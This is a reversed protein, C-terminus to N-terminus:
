LIKVPTMLRKYIDYNMKSHFVAKKGNIICPRFNTPMNNEM